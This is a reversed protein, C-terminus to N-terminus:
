SAAKVMQATIASSIVQVMGSLALVQGREIITGLSTVLEGENADLVYEQRPLYDAVWRLLDDTYMDCLEDLVVHAGTYAGLGYEHLVDLIDVIKGYRWDNPAEGDHADMVMDRVWGPADDKLSLYGSGVSINRQNTVFAGRALNIHHYGAVTLGNMDNGKQQNNPQLQLSGAM